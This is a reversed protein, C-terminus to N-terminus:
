ARSAVDENVGRDMGGQPHTEVADHEGPNEPHDGEVEVVEDTVRSVSPPGPKHELSLKQAIGFGPSQMEIRAETGEELVIEGNAVETAPHLAHCVGEAVKAPGHVVADQDGVDEAPETVAISM